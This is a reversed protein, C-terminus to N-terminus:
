VVGDLCKSLWSSFMPPLANISRLKHRRRGEMTEAMFVLGNCNAGLGALADHMRCVRLRLLSSDNVIALDNDTFQRM